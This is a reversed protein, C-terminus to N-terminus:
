LASVFINVSLCVSLGFVSLPPVGPEDSYGRFRETVPYFNLILPGHNVPSMSRYIIHSLTNDSQDTKRLIIWDRGNHQIYLAFNSSWSIYTMTVWLLMLDNASDSQDMIGPIM